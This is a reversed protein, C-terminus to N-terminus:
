RSNAGMALADVIWRREPLGRSGADTRYLRCRPTYGGSDTYTSDVDRGDVRITPSGPFRVREAVTPDTTDVDIIRAGPAVEAVVEELMQRAARHNACEQIWLLEIRQSM